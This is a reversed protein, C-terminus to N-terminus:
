THRRRRARERNNGNLKRVQDREDRENQQQEEENGKERGTERGRNRERNRGSRVLHYSQQSQRSRPAASAM